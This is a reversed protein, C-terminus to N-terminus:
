CLDELEMEDIGYDISTMIFDALVDSLVPGVIKATNKNILYNDTGDLVLCDSIVKDSQIIKDM